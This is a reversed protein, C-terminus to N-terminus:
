APDRRRRLAALGALGTAFLWLAAPAPVAPTDGIRLEISNGLFSYTYTGATLGLSAFSQGTYTSSGNIGALSTYGAPVYFLDALAFFGVPGGSGNGGDSAFGGTGFALDNIAAGYYDYSGQGLALFGGAPSM